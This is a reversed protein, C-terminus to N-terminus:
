VLPGLTGTQGAFDLWPGGDSQKRQMTWNWRICVDFVSEVCTLLMRQKPQNPPAPYGPYYGHDSETPGGIWTFWDWTGDDLDIRLGGPGQSTVTGVTDGDANKFPGSGIGPLQKDHM